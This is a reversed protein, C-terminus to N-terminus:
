LAVARHAMFRPAVTTMTSTSSSKVIEGEFNRAAIVGRVLATMGTSM